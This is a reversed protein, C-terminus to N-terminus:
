DPLVEQLARGYANRATQMIALEEQLSAIRRDVAQLSVLQAMAEPSLADTDYESDDININPM